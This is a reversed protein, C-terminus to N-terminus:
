LRAWCRDTMLLKSQPLLFFSDPENDTNEQLMLDM